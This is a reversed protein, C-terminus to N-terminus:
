VMDQNSNPQLVKNSNEQVCNPLAKFGQLRSALAIDLCFLGSLSSISKCYQLFRSIIEALSEPCWLWEKPAKSSNWTCLVRQFDDFALFSQLSSMQLIWYYCTKSMIWHMFRLDPEFSLRSKVKDLFLIKVIKLCQKQLALL